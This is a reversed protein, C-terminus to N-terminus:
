KIAMARAVLLSYGLYFHSLQIVVELFHMTAYKYLLDDGALASLAGAHRDWHILDGYQFLSLLEQPKVDEGPVPM